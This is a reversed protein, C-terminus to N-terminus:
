LPSFCVHFGLSWNTFVAQPGTGDKNLKIRQFSVNGALIPPHGTAKQVYSVTEEKPAQKCVARMLEEWLYEPEEYLWSATWLGFEFTYKLKIQQQVFWDLPSSTPSIGLCPLDTSAPRLESLAPEEIDFFYTKRFKSFVTSAKVANRVADRVVTLVPTSM